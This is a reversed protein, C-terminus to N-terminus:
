NAKGKAQAITNHNLWDKFRCGIGQDLCNKVLCCFVASIAEVGILLSFLFYEVSLLNNARDM